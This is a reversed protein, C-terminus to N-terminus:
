SVEADALADCFEEPTRAAVLRRRVREHRVLRAIRSLVQVHQGASTEPGVILFFLRVPQGDVADYPVPERSVGGVLTLDAVGAARAHPIAVGEGIGTSLVSEREAIAGMVADYTGGGRAVLLRVLEDLAGGKDRAALPVLVRDPTLLETLLV